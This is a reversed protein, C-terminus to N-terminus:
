RGMTTAYPNDFNHAAAPAMTAVALATAILITKLM